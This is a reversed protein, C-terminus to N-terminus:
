WQSYPVGNLGAGPQKSYVDFVDAGPMPRDPPSAYSRLGWTQEAALTPDAFPDRPLRRLLYIRRRDASKADEVGEVLVRLNAPYGTADAAKVIRGEDSAQKYTDLATRIQRLASRLEEEKARQQALDALPLAMTALVGVIVVVVLIEILTFGRQM